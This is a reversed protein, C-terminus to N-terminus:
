NHKEEKKKMEKKMKENKDNKHKSVKQYMEITTRSSTWKKELGRVRQRGPRGRLRRAWGRRYRESLSSRGTERRAPM